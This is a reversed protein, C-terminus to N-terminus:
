WWKGYLNKKKYFWRERFDNLKFAFSVVLFQQNRRMKRNGVSLTNSLSSCLYFLVSCFVDAFHINFDCYFGGGFFFVFGIVICLVHIGIITLWISFFIWVCIVIFFYLKVSHTHVVHHLNCPAMHDFRYIIIWSASQTLYIPWNWYRIQYGTFFLSFFLFIIKAFTM